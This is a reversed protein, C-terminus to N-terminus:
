NIKIEWEIIFDMDMIEISVKKYHKHNPFM